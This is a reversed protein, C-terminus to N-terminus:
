VISSGPCSHRQGGEWDWEKGHFCRRIHPGSIMGCFVFQCLPSLGAVIGDRVYGDNFVKPIEVWQQYRKGGNDTGCDHSTRRPCNVLSPRHDWCSWRFANRDHVWKNFRDRLPVLSMRMFGGPQPCPTIHPPFLPFVIILPTFPLVSFRLCTLHQAVLVLVPLPNLGAVPALSHLLCSGFPLFGCCQRFARAM